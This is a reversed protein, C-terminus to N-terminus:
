RQWFPKGVCMIDARDNIILYIISLDAFLAIALVIYAATASIKVYNTM